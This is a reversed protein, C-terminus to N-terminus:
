AGQSNSCDPQLQKIFSIIKKAIDQTTNPSFIDGALVHERPDQSNTIYIKQKTRSGFRAFVKETAAPRVIKDNPSLFFLAPTHINEVNARRALRVLQMMAINAVMPYDQTWYQSHLQNVPTWKWTKGFLLPVFFRAFPMTLLRAAFKAPMFNPSILIYALVEDAHNNAALWTALTAGTSTAIILIKKGIRQGINLAEIADDLWDAATAKGLASAHQGHGTLRTYFLNAGFEGAVLDSLPATEQRCASFGHLYVVALPTQQKQASDAWRIIKEAHPILDSFRAEQSALYADIDDPLRM